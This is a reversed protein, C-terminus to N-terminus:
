ASGPDGSVACRVRVQPCGVVGLNGPFTFFSFQLPLSGSHGKDTTMRLYQLGKSARRTAQVYELLMHDKTSNDLYSDAGVFSFVM